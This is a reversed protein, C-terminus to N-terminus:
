GREEEPQMLEPQDHPSGVKTLGSLECVPFLSKMGDVAVVDKFKFACFYNDWIIERIQGTNTKFLDGEWADPLGTFEGVTDPDVEYSYYLM